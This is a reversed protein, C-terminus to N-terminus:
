SEKEEANKQVPEDEGSHVSQNKSDEALAREILSSLHQGELVSKDYIFRLSPTSRMSSMGSLHKRLFGAAGNLVGVAEKIKEDTEDGVFTVFVKASSIDRNVEVDNVNVMGIRPDRIEKQILQALEKKIFDAVRHARTFERAM